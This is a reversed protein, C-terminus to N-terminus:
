ELDENSEITDKPKQLITYKPIAKNRNSIAIKTSQRLKDAISQSKNSSLEPTSSYSVPTYIYQGNLESVGMMQLIKIIEHAIYPITKNEIDICVIPYGHSAAWYYSLEHLEHLKQIYSTDINESIREKCKIPNSRLYIYGKPNWVHRNKEYIELIENINDDTLKNAEKYIPIFVQKQFYPSRDMILISDEKPQIWCRDLLLHLQYKENFCYSIKSPELDIPLIYNRHLYDLIENKNSGINGDITFIPM